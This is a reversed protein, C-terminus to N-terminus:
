IPEVQGSLLCRLRTQVQRSSHVASFYFHGWVTLLSIHADTDGFTLGSWLFFPGSCQDLGARYTRIRASSCHISLHDTIFSLLVLLIRRLKILPASNPVWCRVNERLHAETRHSRTMLDAKNPKTCGCSLTTHKKNVVDQVFNYQLMVHKMQWPGQKSAWARAAQGDVLNPERSGGEHGLEGLLHNTVMGEAIGTTLAYLEAEASSLRGSQRTSSWASLTVNRWQVVGNSTSKCTQPQGACDSDTHM